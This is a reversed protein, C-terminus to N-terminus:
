TIPEANKIAMHAIEGDIREFVEAPIRWGSGEIMVLLFKLDVLAETSYSVTDKRRDLTVHYRDGDSWVYVDSDEGIRCYSM